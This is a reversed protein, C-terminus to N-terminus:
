SGPYLIDGKSNARRFGGWPDPMLGSRSVIREVEDADDLLLAGQMSNVTRFMRVIRSQDDPSDEILKYLGKTIAKLASFNEAYAEASDFMKILRRVQDANLYRLKLNVHQGTETKVFVDDISNEVAVVQDPLQNNQNKFNTSRM